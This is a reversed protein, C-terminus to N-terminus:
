CTVENSAACTDIFVDSKLSANLPTKLSSPRPLKLKVEVAEVPPSLVSKLISLFVPSIVLLAAKSKSVAVSVAPLPDVAPSLM